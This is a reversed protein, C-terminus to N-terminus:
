RVTPALYDDCIRARPWADLFACVAPHSALPDPRCLLGFRYGDEILTPIIIELAAVTRARPGGGDHLLVVSGPGVRRLVRRAIGEASIDTWDAGHADWLEVTLGLQGAWREVRSNTAGYPPRLCTAQVKAAYLLEAQTRNMDTIFERRSFTTLTDHNWAHSQMSHGEEVIRRAPEPWRRVMDGVVFFTAKVQYSALVELVQPTYVPHPGDDFTLYVVPASAEREAEPVPDEPHSLPVRDAHFGAAM